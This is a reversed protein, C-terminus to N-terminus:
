FTVCRGTSEPCVWPWAARLVADSKAASLPEHYAGQPEEAEQQRGSQSIGGGERDGRSGRIDDVPTYCAYWETHRIDQGSLDRLRCM